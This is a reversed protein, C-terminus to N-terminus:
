YQMSRWWSAAARRTRRRLAHVARRWRSGFSGLLLAFQPDLESVHQEIDALVQRDHISLAM